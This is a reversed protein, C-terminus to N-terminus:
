FNAASMLLKHKRKMRLENHGLSAVIIRVNICTIDSTCLWADGSGMSVVTWQVNPVLKLSIKILICLKDNFFICELINAAFFHWGNQEPGFTNFNPCRCRWPGGRWTQDTLQSRAWRACNWQINCQTSLTFTALAKRSSPARTCMHHEVGKVPMDLTQICHGKCSREAVRYM